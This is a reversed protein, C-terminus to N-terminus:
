RTVILEGSKIKEAAEVGLYAHLDRDYKLARRGRAMIRDAWRCFAEDKRVFKGQELCTHEYWFRGRRIIKGDSFTRWYEIVHSRDAHVNIKVPSLREINLRRPLGIPVLYHFVSNRLAQSPPLLDRDDQTPEGSLIEVDGSRCLVSDLVQLDNQTLLISFQKGM